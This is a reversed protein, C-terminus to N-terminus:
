DPCAFFFALQRSSIFGSTGVSCSSDGGPPGGLYSGWFPSPACAFDSFNPCLLWNPPRLLFSLTVAVIGFLLFNLKPQRDYKLAFIGAWSLWPAALSEFMPRSLAFPAAFYFGLLLILIRMELDSLSERWAYFSGFVLLFSLLGLVVVVFQYQAFPNEIGLKLAGQATVFLPWLQTPSKVDDTGVLTSLQSSQAPIYRTIGTWYEDTGMFGPNILTVLVYILFVPLVYKFLFRSWISLIIM